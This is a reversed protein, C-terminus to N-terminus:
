GKTTLHKQLDKIIKGKLRDDSMTVNAPNKCYELWVLDIVYGILEAAKEAPDHAPDNISKSLDGMAAVAEMMVDAYYRVPGNECQELVEKFDITTKSM